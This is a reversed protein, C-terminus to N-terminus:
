VQVLFVNDPVLNKISSAITITDHGSAVVLIPGDRLSLLKLVCLLM